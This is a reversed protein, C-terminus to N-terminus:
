NKKEDEQRIFNLFFVLFVSLIFGTVFAVVVILKKKPKVPYENVVYNGVVQSNQVNQPLLRYELSKVKEELKIIKNNLTLNIKNELKRIKDTLVIEKSKKLNPITENKLKVLELNLNELKDQSNLILNQYNVIQISSIMVSTKDKSAKNEKFLNDIASQYTKLNQKQFDIKNNIAKTADVKAYRIKEDLQVIDRTKIIEISKKVDAIEIDSVRQIQRKVELIQTNVDLVYNEITPKYENIIFDTVEKNKTLAEDNSVAETKITLFNPIKKNVSVSTVESVFDEKTKLKDEVNFLIVAKRVATNPTVILKEGIFGIQVQSKVEYIPTKIYAFVAALLTISFTIVAIFVKKEVLTKFLEKLDIEDEQYNQTNENM